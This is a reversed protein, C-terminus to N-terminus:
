NGTKWLSNAEPFIELARDLVGHLYAITIGYNVIPINQEESNKIRNLMEKRNIMCGGCHLILKFDKLNSPYERGNTFHFDLGESVYKGLWAPLKIRGIDNCQQHHTCAEAILIKDGAKLKKLVKAGEVLKELNGKYRAFLISFSTLFIDEPLKESVEKFIQSDTIVLKPKEKFNELTQTLETDRCVHVIGKNNLIDRITQVQPLILRGKPTGDDIPVVLVVHEGQNILDGLISLQEFEKPANNIIMQKLQGINEKTMVSVKIFKYGDENLKYELLALNKTENGSFLLYEPDLDIKNIVIIFPIRRDRFKQIINEDFENLGETDIVLLAIDTKELVEETKHVRLKGLDGMDDIGATDILTVPGIPFIEMSKYVPDTTTGAHESVISLNQNAIANILSSKGMNRKGFIAIHLRESTPTKNM